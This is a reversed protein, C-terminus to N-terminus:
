YRLTLFDGPGAQRVEAVERAHRRNLFQVTIVCYIFSNHFRVPAMKTLISAMKDANAKFHDLLDQPLKSLDPMRGSTIASIVETPIKTLNYGNPLLKWLEM